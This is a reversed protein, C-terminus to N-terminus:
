ITVMAPEPHSRSLRAVIRLARALDDESGGGLSIRVGQPHPPAAAGSRRPGATAFASGAALAVGMQRAHAVFDAESWEGPMPMWLHLGHPLGHAAGEPLLSRALANRHALAARQWRLLEEATGDAIWRSAMEVSLPAAMWNTVMHRGRAAAIMTDPVVLWGLRLGPMLCKTLSTLYLTREPALAAIPPPRDPELPGSADNEVIRLDHRRAVAVIERRRDGDSFSATPAVGSPVLYLVRAGGACARDLADPLIGHRDTEVGELKLGLASSLPRLSHHAMRETLVTDGATAVTMLAVTMAATCGNTPIVRDDAAELGCRSLWARAPGRHGALARGPRFSLIADPPLDDAMSRLAARTREVHIPGTVPTLMSCDVVDEERRIRQFPVAGGNEPSARVYSGSGVRASILGMRTLEDYARSVTQVSLGLDFALARHTPLKDGARLQGGEIARAMARALGRYAPHDLQDRGPLWNTM